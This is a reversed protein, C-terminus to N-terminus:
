SKTAGLAGGGPLGLIRQAVINPQVESTVGAIAM